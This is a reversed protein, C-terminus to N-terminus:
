QAQHHSAILFLMRQNCGEGWSGILATMLPHKEVLRLTQVPPVELVLCLTREIVGRIM